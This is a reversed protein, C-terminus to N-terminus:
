PLDCQEAGAVAITPIGSESDQSREALKQGEQRLLVRVKSQKM